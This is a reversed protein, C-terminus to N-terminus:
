SRAETARRYSALVEDMLWSTRAATVGTSPCQGHGTLADVITQILPQEVHPPHPVPRSDRGGATTVVLPVDDFTAYSITGRSGVIEARDLRDGAAFCWAGVGLVGSAFRLRATVVDEAQYLGAQNAAAGTAEVVPGLFFDLLDLMHCGLDLFLGAGAVAPDVRWALPPGLHAPDPPQRLTVTVLRPEGIAGSALLKKIEVFRPLARRYYAVFLPVGARECAAIMELCDAHRPAMPKEVYVPKGAEAALLTYQRHSSPPTAVYVADVEPDAVLKEADGYWRAVGHRRAYDEARARDRRMVAVLRSGNAKQFGPGSKVETVDGCGIMGWRVIDM